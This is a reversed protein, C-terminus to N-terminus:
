VGSVGGTYSSILFYEVIAGIALSVVGVGLGLLAVPMMRWYREFARQGGLGRIPRLAHIAPLVSGTAVIVYGLIEFVAYGLTSCVASLGVQNVAAATSAGILSGVGVLGFAAGVGFTIVGTFLAFAVGTNRLFIALFLPTHADGLPFGIM